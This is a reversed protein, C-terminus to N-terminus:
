RSGATSFRLSWRRLMSSTGKMFSFAGNGQDYDTIRDFIGNQADTLAARPDTLAGGSGVAAGGFVFLDLGSGGTLTDAGPVAMSRTTAAPAM